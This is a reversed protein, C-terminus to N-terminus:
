LRTSSIGDKPFCPFRGAWCERQFIWLSTDAKLIPPEAKWPRGRKAWEQSVSMLSHLIRASSWPAAFSRTTGPGALVAM